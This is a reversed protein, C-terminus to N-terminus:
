AGSKGVRRIEWELSISFKEYVRKRVMEGLAELEKASADDTNLLFNPHMESMQAGGLRAGRLGADDILKWAKLDHVDDAQGTSSFGAPNRFTSGCSRKDVPQTADRTAIADAMKANLTEPDGREGKMVVSTLILDHTVASSRYAFNMDSLGLDVTEGNRTIAEASIFVDAMYSGYCGANMAVAGGIAGPITRLFTLDVGEAAAKRAVHSDLAAAGARVLGDGITEIGNFGRGLKLVVGDLGGDRIIMNSCVGVPLLPVETPLERLFTRLDEADAPQYLWEAPGGVRLWSLEAMPKGATLAGSLGKREILEALM